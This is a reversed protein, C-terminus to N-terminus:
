SLAVPPQLGALEAQRARFRDLLALTLRGPRSDGVVHRGVRVVPFIDRLTSTLFVECAHAGSAVDRLTFAKEEVAYGAEVALELVQRRTVGNLIHNDAPHTRLTGDLFAFFNSSGGERVTGDPGVFLAESAGARRAEDKALVAALLDIAKIHCYAWRQDEVPHVVTGSLVAEDTPGLASRAYALVTPEVSEPIEFDRPWAGRTVQLYVSGSVVGSRKVLEPVVEALRHGAAAGALRIAALSHELRELHEDLWLARGNIVRVVEYVGDGLQFGRDEVAIHGESIPLVVGNLYLLEPDM